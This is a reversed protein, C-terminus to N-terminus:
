KNVNITSGSIDQFAQNNDGTQNITNVKSAQPISKLLEQLETAAEPSEKLKDELKKAFDQQIKETEPYSEYIHLMQDDGGFLGKVKEWIRGREAWGEKAAEGALTEAGKILYPTVAAVVALALEM